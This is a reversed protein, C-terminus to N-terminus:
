KELYKILNKLTNKNDYAYGLACNCQNCLLGRVAGTTHCHDVVLKKKLDVQHRECGLCKGEQLQFMNNYVELSIGYLNKYANDRAMEPKDERHKRRRKQDCAKCVYAKGNKCEKNTVFLELDKEENCKKCTREM